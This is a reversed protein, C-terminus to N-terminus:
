HILCVAPAKEPRTAPFFDIKEVINHVVASATILLVAQGRRIVACLVPIKKKSNVGQCIATYHPLRKQWSPGDNERAVDKLEAIINQVDAISNIKQPNSQPYCVAPQGGAANCAKKGASGLNDM